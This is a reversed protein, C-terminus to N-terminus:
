PRDFTTARLARRQFRVSRITTNTDMSEVHQNKPIKPAASNRSSKEMGSTWHIRISPSHALAVRKCSTMPYTVGIYRRRNTLPVNSSNMPHSKGHNEYSNIRQTGVNTSIRHINRPAQHKNRQGHRQDKAQGLLRTCDTHQNLSSSMGPASALRAITTPAPYM